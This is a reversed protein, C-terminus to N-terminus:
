EGSEGDIREQTETILKERSAAAMWRDPSLNAAERTAHGLSSYTSRTGVSSNAVQVTQSRNLGLKEAGRIVDDGGQGLFIVLWGEKEKDNLLERVKAYSYHRSSNEHGDTQILLIVRDGNGRYSEVTSGVADLLATMGGPMYMEEDMTRVSQLDNWVLPRHAEGEFLTLTVSYEVGKGPDSRLEKIYDNFGDRVAQALHAMSGSMDTVFLVDVKQTM